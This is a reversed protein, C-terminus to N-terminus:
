KGFQNERVVDPWIRIIQSFLYESRSRIATEDWASAEPSHFYQNLNLKTFKLLEPRKVGWSSNSLAPNLSGTILTLNGLTNVLANRRAISKQETVPDVKAESSLPWYTSWTQPMVHEITLGPPLPLSESKSSQAFADLAELIARVKYQALRGYLPQEFIATMVETDNPFRTSEGAGKGLQAAVNTASVGGDKEVAKLLDLFLRNYNKATLNCILRRMLFSELLELVKDLEPRRNPLLETCAHLLFPYVTATDIAELRSLFLALRTHDGPAYFTRFVTAYRALQEIHAAPTKPNHISSGSVAGGSLVFTKFASFLHASRVEDQTMMTLYHSIFLDIRAPQPFLLSPSPALVYDYLITKHAARIM